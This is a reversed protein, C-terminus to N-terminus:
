NAYDNAFETADIVNVAQDSNLDARNTQANYSDLFDIVDQTDLINDRNWDGSLPSDDLTITGAEALVPVANQDYFINIIEVEDAHILDNAILHLNFSTGDSTDTDADFATVEYGTKTYYIAIALANKICPIQSADYSQGTNANVGINFSLTTNVQTNYKGNTNGAAIAASDLASIPNVLALDVLIPDCGTNSQDDIIDQVANQYELLAGSICDERAEKNDEGPFLNLCTDLNDRFDQFAQNFLSNPHGDICNQHNISAANRCAQYAQADNYSDFDNNENDFQWNCVNLEALYGDFCDLQVMNATALTTLALTATTGALALTKRNM